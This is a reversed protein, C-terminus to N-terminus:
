RRKLRVKGYITQVSAEIVRMVDGDPAYIVEIPFSAREAMEESTYGAVRIYAGTCALGGGSVAYSSRRRGDFVAFDAACGQGAPLDRLGAFLASAPDLTGGQDSPDLLEPGDLRPSSYALVQPVGDKYVMEVRSQRRGTDAQESYLEPEFRGKEAIQGESRADFRIRKVIGALGGSEITILVAYRGDSVKSAIIMRAVQLGALTVDYTADQAAAFGGPVGWVLGWAVALGLMGQRIVRIM